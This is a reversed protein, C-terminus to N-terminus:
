HHVLKSPVPPRAYPMNLYDDFPVSDEEAKSIAAPDVEKDWFINWGRQQDEVVEPHEKLFKDMFRTFESVYAGQM